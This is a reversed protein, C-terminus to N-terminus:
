YGEFLEYFQMPNTMLFTKMGLAAASELNEPRDDIMLSCEAHLSERELVIRFSEPEPKRAGIEFSYYAKHFYHDLSPSEYQEKLYHNLQDIHISNTNSLALCRFDAKLKTLIELKRMPIEGLMANWAHDIESDLWVPNLHERLLERFRGATIEGREFDDFFRVQKHFSYLDAQSHGAMEKFASRTAETDINVVVDGLDFVLADIDKLLANKM